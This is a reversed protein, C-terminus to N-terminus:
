EDDDDWNDIAENLEDLLYDYFNDYRHNITKNGRAWSVVPCENKVMKSTDLCMVFEGCDEVVVCKEDLGLKRYRETNYVVSSNDNTQVGSITIGLISGCGYNRIFWKYSDPFVVQLKKEALEIYDDTVKGFFRSKESYRSLIETIENLIM